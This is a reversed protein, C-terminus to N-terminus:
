SGAAGASLPLSALVRYATTGAAPVSEMIEVAPVVVPPHELTRTQVSAILARGTAGPRARALTLHPHFPREEPPFGLPALAAAIRERIQALAGTADAIGAWFVRPAGRPPFFGLGSCALAPPPLGPLASRVAGTIEGLRARPVPGLFQITCHYKEPAEWRFDRALPALDDVLRALAARVAPPTDVAIFLRIQDQANM